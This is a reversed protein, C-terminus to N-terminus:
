YGIQAKTEGGGEGGAEMRAGNEVGIRRRPAEHTVFAVGGTVGAYWAAVDVPTTEYHTVFPHIILPKYKPRRKFDKILSFLFSISIIM